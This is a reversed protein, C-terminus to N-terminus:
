FTHEYLYLQAPNPNRPNRIMRMVQDDEMEMAEVHRRWKHQGVLYRQALEEWAHRQALKRQRIVQTIASRQRTMRQKTRRYLLSNSISSSSDSYGQPWTSSNDRKDHVGSGSTSTSTSSGSTGSGNGNSSQGPAGKENAEMITLRQGTQAAMVMQKVTWQDRQALAM